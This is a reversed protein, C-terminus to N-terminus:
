WFQHQGGTDQAASSDGWSPGGHTATGAAPAGEIWTGPMINSKPTNSGKDKSENDWGGSNNDNHPKDEQNNGWDNETGRGGLYTDSGWHNGPKRQSEHSRHSGQNSGEKWSGANDQQDRGWNQWEDPKDNRNDWTRPQDGGGDNNPWEHNSQPHYDSKVAQNSDKHEEHRRASGYSSFQSRAKALNYYPNNSGKVNEPRVHNGGDNGMDKSYPPNNLAGSMVHPNSDQRIIQNDLKPVHQGLAYGPPPIAANWAGVPMGETVPVHIHGYGGAPPMQRDRFGYLCPNQTPHPTGAPLPKSEAPQSPYLAHGHHHGYAPGYYVRVVNHSPDYYANPPPDHPTEVVRETQVVEARVPQIFNPRRINPAPWGEPQAKKKNKAENQKSKQRGSQSKKEKKSRSKKSVVEAAEESEDDADNGRSDNQKQQQHKKIEKQSKKEENKKSKTPKEKNTSNKQNAKKDKPKSPITKPPTDLESEDTEAATESEESKKGGRKESNNKNKVKVPQTKNRGSKDSESESTDLESESVDTEPESVKAKKPGNKKTQKKGKTASTDTESDPTEFSTDSDRQATKLCQKSMARRGWICGACKCTPHPVDSGDGSDTDTDTSISSPMRKKRFQKRTRMAKTSDDTVEQESDSVNGTQASELTADTESGSTDEVESITVHTKKLASKIPASKVDKEFRVKKVVAESSCDSVPSSANSGTRPYTISVTDTESEDDTTVEFKVVDRRKPKPQPKPVSGLVSPITTSVAWECFLSPGSTKKPKPPM